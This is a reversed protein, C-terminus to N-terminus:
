LMDSSSFIILPNGALSMAAAIQDSLNTMIQIQGLIGKSEPM